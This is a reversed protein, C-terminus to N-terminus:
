VPFREQIYKELVASVSSLRAAKLGLDMTEYDTGQDSNELVDLLYKVTNIKGDSIANILICTKSSSDEETIPVGKEIFVSIIEPVDYKTLFMMAFFRLNFYRHRNLKEVFMDSSIVKKFIKLYSLGLNLLAHLSTAPDLMFFSIDMNDMFELLSVSTYIIIKDSKIEKDLFLVVSNTSVKVEAIRVNKPYNMVLMNIKDCLDKAMFFSYGKVGNVADQNTGSLSLCDYKLESPTTDVNLQNELFNTNQDLIMFLKSDSHKQKMIKDFEDGKYFYGPILDLDSEFETKIQSKLQSKLQSKIMNKQYGKKIGLKFGLIESVKKSSVDTHIKNDTYNNNYNNNYNNHIKHIDSM